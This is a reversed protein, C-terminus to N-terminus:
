LALGGGVVFLQVTSWIDLRGVLSCLQAYQVSSRLDALKKKTAGCRLSLNEFACNRKLIKSAVKIAVTIIQNPKFNHRNVTITHHNLGTSTLGPQFRTFTLIPKVLNYRIILTAIPNKAGLEISSFEVLV